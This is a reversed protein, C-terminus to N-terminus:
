AALVTRNNKSSFHIGMPLGNLSERKEIVSFAGAALILTFSQHRKM